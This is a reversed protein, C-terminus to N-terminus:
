WSLLLSIRASQMMKMSGAALGLGGSRMARVLRVVAAWAMRGRLVGLPTGQRHRRKSDGEIRRCVALISSSGENAQLRKTVKKDSASQTIAVYLSGTPVVLNEHRTGFSWESLVFYM